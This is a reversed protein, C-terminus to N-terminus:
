YAALAERLAAMVPNFHKSLEEIYVGVEELNVNNRTRHEIAKNAATMEANGVFALTSKMKHSVQFLEHWNQSVYHEQMGAFEEPLEELIMELMTKELDADGEAMVKLYELNIVQTSTM